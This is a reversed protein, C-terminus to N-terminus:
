DDDLEDAEDPTPPDALPQFSSGNQALYNRAQQIVDLRNTKVWSDGGDDSHKNGRYLRDPHDLMEDLLNIINTLNPNSM